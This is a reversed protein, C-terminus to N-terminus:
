RSEGIEQFYLRVRNQVKTFCAPCYTHTFTVDAPNVGYTKAYARPAVWRGHQPRYGTEDRIFGCMCCVPLLQPAIYPHSMSASPAGPANQMSLEERSM